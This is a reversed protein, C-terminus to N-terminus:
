TIQQSATSSALKAKISTSSPTRMAFTILIGILVLALYVSLLVHKDRQELILTDSIENCERSRSMSTMNNSPRPPNHLVLSSITPGFVFASMLGLYLISSFRSIMRDAPVKYIAAYDIASCTVMTTVSTNQMMLFAGWLACMTLLSAPQVQFHAAVYGLCPVMSLRATRIAGLRRLLFPLLFTVTVVSPFFSLAVCAQGLGGDSNISSELSALGFFANLVCAVAFMVIFCNRAHIQADKKGAASLYRSTCLSSTPTLDTSSRWDGETTSAHGHNAQQHENEHETGTSLDDEGAEHTPLRCGNGDHRRKRWGSLTWGGLTDSLISPESRDM